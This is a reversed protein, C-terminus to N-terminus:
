PLYIRIVVLIRQFVMILHVTEGPFALGVGLRQILCRQQKSNKMAENMKAALSQQPVSRDFGWASCYSECYMSWFAVQALFADIAVVGMM